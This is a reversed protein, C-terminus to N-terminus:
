RKPLHGWKVMDEVAEIISQKIDMFSLGLERRIKANDYRFTRGVNTRIYTGTDKPQTFSLLKMLLTGAKGSLDLKPLAYKRFGSSKLLAVLDRMHMADGSCLYRGSAAGNTMALLHAKAVDRVDVFGWNIDMIGPYVGTMIDRIIQNTTNLSPGLSPGVVMFPNIVVLDFAPKKQMIFDWAAREALTKSYQYPHRDLSSMTNWDKETFVKSSEPEDTIAAISSTFVVRKVGGSKMCSHLISETGDVAPDVLDEQPNKVNIEYPSATHIVYDCGDVARDYANAQLLDAKVLELREEAGPLNLLFPYNEASKRVTGRVRYGERLLDRVIYAAIFGSAGTVCVPKSTIM